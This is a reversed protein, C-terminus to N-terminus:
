GADGDLIAIAKTVFEESQSYDGQWDHSLMFEKAAERSEFWTPMMGNIVEQLDKWTDCGQLADCGPCSGWGFKLYGWPKRYLVWSDGQYDDASVQLAVEGLSEIIPQYDSPLNGEDYGPYIKRADM